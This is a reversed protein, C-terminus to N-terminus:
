RKNESCGSYTQGSQAKGATRISYECVDKGGNRGVVKVTGREYVVGARLWGQWTNENKVIGVQKDNLLISAEECNTCIILSVEEGDTYNWAKM